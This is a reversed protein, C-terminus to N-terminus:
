RASRHPGFADQAGQRYTSDPYGYRTPDGIRRTSLVGYPEDFYTKRLREYWTTGANAQSGLNRVGYEFIEQSEFHSGNANPYGVQQVIALHGQTYLQSLFAFQWGRGCRHM